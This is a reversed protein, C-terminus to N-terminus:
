LVALPIPMSRSSYGGINRMDHCGFVVDRLFQLLGEIRFAEVDDVFRMQVLAMGAVPRAAFGVESYINYRIREISLAPDVAVAHYIRQQRRFEGATNVREGDMGMCRALVRPPGSGRLGALM